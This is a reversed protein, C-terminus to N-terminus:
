IFLSEVSLSSFNSLLEEWHVKLQKKKTLHKSGISHTWFHTRHFYAFSDNCWNIIVLGLAIWRNVEFNQQLFTSEQSDISFIYLCHRLVM